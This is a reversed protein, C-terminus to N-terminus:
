DTAAAYITRGHRAIAYYILGPNDRHRELDGPTAVILDFPVRIGHITRCLLQATRRRHTGESMVVVLDIDSDARAQGGAASGFLIIRLPHVAAVIQQSLDRIVIEDAQM